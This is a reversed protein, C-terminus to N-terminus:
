LMKGRSFLGAKPCIIRGQWGREQPIRTGALDLGGSASFSVHSETPEMRNGAAEAQNLFTTEEISSPPTPYYAHQVWALVRSSRNSVSLFHQKSCNLWSHPAITFALAM